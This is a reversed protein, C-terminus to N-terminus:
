SGGEGDFPTGDRRTYRVGDADATVKLDHDPYWGVETDTGTGIILFSGPADSLNVNQHGNADGAPFALCDGVSLPTQGHDDVLTLRGSTVMAFEDQREHWHRISSKAGPELHVLNAGFQTIGGAEGLRQSSRGAVEQDHPPPYASGDRRPVASIDIKPM